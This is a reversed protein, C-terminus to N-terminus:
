TRLPVQRYHYKGNNGIRHGKPKANVSVPAGHLSEAREVHVPLAKSSKTRSCPQLRVALDRSLADWQVDAVTAGALSHRRPLACPGHERAVPRVCFLLLVHSTPSSPSVPAGFRLLPQWLSLPCRCRVLEHLLNARLAEPVAHLPPPVPASSALPSM